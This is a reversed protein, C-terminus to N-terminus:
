GRDRPISLLAEIDSKLPSASAAVPGPAFLDAGEALPNVWGGAEEVILAGAMMDWPNLSMEFFGDVFGAAVYCLGLAASGFRRNEIEREHLYRIADFYVELPQTRSYGLAIMPGMGREQRTLDLRRGNMFAGEGRAAEFLQDRTPDYVVGVQRRGGAVYAISVGWQDLGRLYNSTGDIPDVVWHGGEGDSRGTEEGVFGDAAFDAQLIARVLDETARDAETVFDQVGKAEVKLEGTELRGRLDLALSGGERAARRATALRDAPVKCTM